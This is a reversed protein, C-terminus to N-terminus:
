AKKVTATSVTKTDKKCERKSGKKCCAKDKGCGKGEHAFAAGTMLLIATAFTFIKKM